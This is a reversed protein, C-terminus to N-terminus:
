TLPLPPQLWAPRDSVTVSTVWKIWEPGRRGPVVLRVPAGHGRRLPEGGYGVCLYLNALEGLPFHRGYGTISEVYVSRGIPIDFFSSLPVVDWAQESWWGGTCDLKANIPRSVSRLADIPVVGGGITLSWSEADTDRPSSDNLWIVSPMNEPDGSAIEHSGTSRRDGGALDVSGAVFRQTVHLTAAVATAGGFRLLARRDDDRATPRVPRTVVHWILFPITAFGFLEHTWLASWQGVGFWLGTAHLMGLALTALVLVGFLTSIWRSLRRRRFGTKVSGRMKAPILLALTIGCVGHAFTLVGSLRDGVSWSVLGTVIAGLVLLELALNVQRPTLRAGRQLPKKRGTPQTQVLSSIDSM